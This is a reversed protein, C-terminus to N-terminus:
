DVDVARARVLPQAPHRVRQRQLIQEALEVLRDARLPDDVAAIRAPEWAAVADPVELVLDLGAPEHVQGVLVQLLDEAPVGGAQEADWEDVSLWSRRTSRSTSITSAATACRSRASGSSCGM